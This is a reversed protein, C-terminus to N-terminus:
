SSFNHFFEPIKVSPHLKRCSHNLCWSQTYLLEFKGDNDLIDVTVMGGGPVFSAPTTVTGSIVFNETGELLHDDLINIALVQVYSGNADQAFTVNTDFKLISNALSFDDGETLFSFTHNQILAATNFTVVHLVQLRGTASGNVVAVTVIVPEQLTVNPPKLLYQLDMKVVSAERTTTKNLM